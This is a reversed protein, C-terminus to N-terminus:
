RPERESNTTLGRLDAEGRIAPHRRRNWTALTAIVHDPLESLLTIGRDIRWLALELRGPEHWDGCGPCPNV